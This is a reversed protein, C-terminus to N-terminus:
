VEDKLFFKQFYNKKGQEAEMQKFKMMRHM